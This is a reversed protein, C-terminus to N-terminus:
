YMSPTPNMERQWPTPETAYRRSEGSRGVISFLHIEPTEVFYSALLAFTEPSGGTHSRMDLIIADAHQLMGMAASLANRAEEPRYYATLNLYGVNSPLIEVRQVGFNEQRGRADRSRKAREDSFDLSQEAQVVGVSLHKDHTLEFLDNTLLKALSEHTPARDYRGEILRQRLSTDVRTAVDADFYERQVITALNDVTNQVLERDVESAPAQGAVEAPLLGLAILFIVSFLIKTAFPAVSPLEHCSQEHRRRKM